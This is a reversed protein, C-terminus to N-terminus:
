LYKGPVAFAEKYFDHRKTFHLINGTETNELINSKKLYLSKGGRMIIKKVPIVCYKTERPLGWLNQRCSRLKLDFRNETMM